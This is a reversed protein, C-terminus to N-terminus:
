NEDPFLMGRMGQPADMMTRFANDAESLSFRATVLNSTKVWGRALYELGRPIISGLVGVIRVDKFIIQSVDVTSPSEPLGVLAVKGGARVFGLADNFTEEAGATDYVVDAMAGTGFHHLGIGTVSQVASLLDPVERPNIAIDAGADLAWQIKAASVETVIIQKVPIKKVGQVIFNGIMGAGIVVAVDGATPKTRAIAYLATVLPEAMAAEEDSLEPPVIFLNEGVVANEIKVYEAMAGPRGYGTYNEFLHPCLRFQKHQCWFCQGCYAVSFGTARQGVRIGGVESGFNVIEGCFEHGMIQSPFAYLGTRYTHLDSGCIGVAKVKLLIDRPGLTPMDVHKVEVHGPGKFVVAKLWFM